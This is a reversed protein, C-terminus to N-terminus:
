HPCPLRRMRAAVPYILAWPFLLSLFRGGPRFCALCWLRTFLNWDARLRAKKKLLGDEGEGYLEEKWHPFIANESQQQHSDPRWLTSLIPSHTHRFDDPNKRQLLQDAGQLSPRKKSM